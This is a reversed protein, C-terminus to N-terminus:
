ISKLITVGHPRICRIVLITLRIVGFVLKLIMVILFRTLLKALSQPKGRFELLMAVDTIECGTPLVPRQAKAAVQLQFAVPQQGTLKDWGNELAVPASTQAPVTHWGVFLLSAIVIAALPILLLVGRWLKKVSM